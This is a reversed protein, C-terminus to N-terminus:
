RVKYLTTWLLLVGTKIKRYSRYIYGIKVMKVTKQPVNVSTIAFNFAPFLKKPGGELRYLAHSASTPTSGRVQDALVLSDMATSQSRRQSGHKDM